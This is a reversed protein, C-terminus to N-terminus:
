IWNQFYMKFFGKQLIVWVLIGYIPLKVIQVIKLLVIQVLFLFLMSRSRIVHSQVPCILMLCCLFQILSVHLRIQLLRERSISNHVQTSVAVLSLDMKLSPFTLNIYDEKLHEEFFFRRRIRTRLYITIMVSNLLFMITKQLKLFM